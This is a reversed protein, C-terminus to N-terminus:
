RRRSAVRRTMSVGESSKSRTARATDCASSASPVALSASRQCSIKPLRRVFSSKRGFEGASMFAPVDSPWSPAQKTTGTSSLMSDIKAPSLAIASMWRVPPPVPKEKECRRGRPSTTPEVPPSADPGTENMRTNSQAVSFMLSPPRRRPAFM